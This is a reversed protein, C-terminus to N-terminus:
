NKEESLDTVKELKSFIDNDKSLIENFKNTGMKEESVLTKIVAFSLDSPLDKLLAILNKEQKPTLDKKVYEKKLLREIDDCTIKLLDFRSNKTDSYKKILKKFDPYEDLIDTGRIPKDLNKKLSEIFPIACENGIIGCSTEVWLNEPLKDLMISLIEWSRPSPKINLPIDNNQNGLMEPYKEIFDTVDTDINGKDKDKAWNVWESVEPSLKIHIFRDLLAEDLENVFYDGGSPNCATVIGWGEPLCHTHIKRDWVLQFIAQLVDLRARNLEDLFIIGRSKGNVPLWSPSAWKTVNNKEDINPMGILDGVEMQGLRLDVFGFHNEDFESPNNTFALKKEDSYDYCLQKVIQSKGIGAKGWLIPTLQKEVAKRIVQKTNEINM